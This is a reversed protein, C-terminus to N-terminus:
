SGSAGIGILKALTAVAVARVKKASVPNSAAVVGTPLTRSGPRVMGRASKAPSGEDDHKIQKGAGADLHEQGRVDDHGRRRRKGVRHHRAPPLPAALKAASAIAILAIPQRM